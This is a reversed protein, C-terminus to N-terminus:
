VHLAVGSIGLAESLADDPSAETVLDSLDDLPCVLELHRRNFKNSTVLLTRRQARELMKRKVWCADSEVDTPGDSTLGSAGIFAIDAYFRTLFACTEAGYVGGERASFEGPCFLVRTKEHPGLAQAVALCNTIVTLDEVAYALARAFHATTSGSDIMLVDGPKVMRLALRAIAERERLAIADRDRFQPQLGLQLGAAGGYTRSVLGRQTLEEIDRRVTEASVGLRTAIESTRVIPSLALETMIVRQRAGKKGEPLSMRCIRLQNFAREDRNSPAALNPVDWM